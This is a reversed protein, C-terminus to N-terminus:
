ANKKRRRRAGRVQVARKMNKPVLYQTTIGRPIKDANDLARCDYLLRAGFGDELKEIICKTGLPYSHGRLDVVKVIDGVKFKPNM